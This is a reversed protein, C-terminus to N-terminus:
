DENRVIRVPMAVISRREQLADDLDVEALAKLMTTYTIAIADNDKASAFASVAIWLRILKVDPYDSCMASHMKVFKESQESYLGAIAQAQKTTSSLNEFATLMQERLTKNEELSSLLAMILSAKKADGEEKAQALAFKLNPPGIIETM